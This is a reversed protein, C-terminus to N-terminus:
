PDPDPDLDDADDDIEDEVEIQVEIDSEDLGVWLLLVQGDEVEAWRAAVIRAQQTLGDESRFELAATQGNTWARFCREVLAPGNFTRLRCLAVRSPAPGEVLGYLWPETAAEFTPPPGEIITIKEQATM